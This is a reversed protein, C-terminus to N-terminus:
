EPPFVATLGAVPEEEKAEAVAERFLRRFDPDENVKAVLARLFRTKAIM